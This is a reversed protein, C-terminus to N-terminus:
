VLHNYIGQWLRSSDANRELIWPDMTRDISMDGTIQISSLLSEIEYSSWFCIDFLQTKENFDSLTCQNEGPFYMEFQNLILATYANSYMDLVPAPRRYIQQGRVEIVASNGLAVPDIYTQIMPGIPDRSPGLTSILLNELQHRTFPSGLSIGGVAFAVNWALAGTLNNCLNIHLLWQTIAESLFRDNNLVTTGFDTLAVTKLRSKDERITVLGMAQSYDLIAPTKGSSKGMPIGTIEAIEHISAENETRAYELLATIYRREPIFTQHFSVPLM